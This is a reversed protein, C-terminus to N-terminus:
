QILNAVYCAAVPTGPSVSAATANPTGTFCNGATTTFATVRGTTYDANVTTGGDIAKEAEVVESFPVGTFQVVLYTGTLGFPANRTAMTIIGGAGGFNHLVDSGSIRFGPVYNKINETSILGARYTAGGTLALINTSSNSATVSDQPWVRNAAYFQGNADEVQRFQSALKAGSSRSIISWGISLIIITVLIAIIAVILIMQDLTYGAIRKLHNQKM